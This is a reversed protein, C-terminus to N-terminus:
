GEGEGEGEGKVRGRVRVRVRVRVGLLGVVQLLVLPDRALQVRHVAGGM